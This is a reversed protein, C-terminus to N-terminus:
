RGLNAWVWIWQTLSAMWGDWGRDHGEGGGKLREWCWPRKWHALEKCWTAWLTPAEAEADTREIFIWPQNGKLNVAKIEKSDLPSKLTKELMVTRFCWNKSVWSEKHDLEWMRVHSSSFGYSQNYLGKIAFHRRQKKISQRPKDYSKKWCALMKENWPQMVMWLKPAWSFLNDSSGNKGM